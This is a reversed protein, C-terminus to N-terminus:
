RDPRPHHYTAERSGRIAGGNSSRMEASGNRNLRRLDAEELLREVERVRIYGEGVGSARMGVETWYLIETDVIM